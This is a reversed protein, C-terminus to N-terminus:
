EDRVWVMKNNDWHGLQGRLAKLEQDSLLISFPREEPIHYGDGMSQFKISSEKWGAVRLKQEAQQKLLAQEAAEKCAYLRGNKVESALRDDYETEKVGDPIYWILWYEGPEKLYRGCRSVLPKVTDSFGPPNEGTMSSTYQFLQECEDDSAKMKLLQAYVCANKSYSVSLGGYPEYGEEVCQNLDREFVVKSGSAVLKFVSSM